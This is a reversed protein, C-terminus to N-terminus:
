NSPYYLHARHNKLESIDMVKNGEELLVRLQKMTRPYTWEIRDAREIVKGVISKMM